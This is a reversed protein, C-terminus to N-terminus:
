LVQWVMISLNRSQLLISVQMKTLSILAKRLVPKAIKRIKPSPAMMHVNYAEDTHNTKM